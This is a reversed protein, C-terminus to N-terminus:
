RKQEKMLEKFYLGLCYRGFAMIVEKRSKDLESNM